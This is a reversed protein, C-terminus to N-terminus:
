FDYLDPRDSRFAVRKKPKKPKNEGVVEGKDVVEKEKGVNGKLEVGELEVEVAAPGSASTNMVSGQTDSMDTGGVGATTRRESVGGEVDLHLTEFILRKRTCKFALNNEGSGGSSSVGSLGRLASFRESPSVLSHPGPLAHIHVLGHHSPFLTSLSPNGSFASMTLAADSGWGVKEIWGRGGWSRICACAHPRKRLMAKLQTLFRLIDQASTDGWETSALSPICIRLPSSTDSTDVIKSIRKLIGSLPSIDLSELSVTQLQGASLVQEVIDQPIRVSLDFAHCYGDTSSAQITTQFQKMNEYRWAIKIKDGVAHEPEGENNSSMPLSTSKPLWMIDKVFDLPDQDILCVNHGCVLGEAIFYKQVLEGYSSNLDPALIDDLSPIGTSTIITPTSAPSLRTGALFSLEKSRNKAQFFSPYSSSM